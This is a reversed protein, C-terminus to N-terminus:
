SLCGGGSLELFDVEKTTTISAFDALLLMAMEHEEGNLASCADELIVMRYDRDHGERVASQVVANSSVGSVVLTQANLAKLTPELTTGYFPGVRHKVIDFDGEEPAVAPHVETGWNGLQLIGNERAKVFRPTAQSVEIYKPSFGVRVYGIAIGVARAKDLARATNELVQRRRVEAGFGATGSPGDPHVIDNILDLVLYVVTM